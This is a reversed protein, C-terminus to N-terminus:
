LKFFFKIYNGIIHIVLAQFELFVGIAYMHLSFIECHILYVPLFYMMIYEPDCHINQLRSSPNYKTEM